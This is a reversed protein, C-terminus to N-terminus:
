LIFCISKVRWWQTLRPLLEFVRGMKLVSVQSTPIGIYHGM